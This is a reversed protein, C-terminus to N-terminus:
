KIFVKMLLSEIEEKTKGIYDRMFLYNTDPTSGGIRSLEILDYFQGHIFPNWNWSQVVLCRNLQHLDIELPPSSLLTPLFLAKGTFIEMRIM